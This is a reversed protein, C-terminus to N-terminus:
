FDVYEDEDLDSESILPPLDRILGFYNDDEMSWGWVFRSCTEHDDFTTQLLVADYYTLNYRLWDFTEVMEYSYAEQLMNMEEYMKEETKRRLVEQFEHMIGKFQQQHIRKLIEGEFICQPLVSEASKLINVHVEM